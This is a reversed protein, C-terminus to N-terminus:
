LRYNIYRTIFIISFSDELKKIMYIKLWFYLLAMGISNCKNTTKKKKLSTSKYGNFILFVFLYINLRKFLSFIYNLFNHLM